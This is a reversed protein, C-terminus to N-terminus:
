EKSLDIMRQLEPINPLGEVNVTYEVSRGHNAIKRIYGKKVLSVVATDISTLGCGAWEALYQRSGCYTLGNMFFGYIVAFVWIEIRNLDMDNRMFSHVIVHTGDAILKEADGNIRGLNLNMKGGKVAKNRVSRNYMMSVLNYADSGEM